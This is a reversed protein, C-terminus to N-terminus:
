GALKDTLEAMELDVATLGGADHTSWAVKVKGYSVTMEPHHDRKEAAFGVKVAFAVGAAFGEFSFTKTVAGAEVSWGTHGAVFAEVVDAELKERTTM